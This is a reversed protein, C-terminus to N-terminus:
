LITTPILSFTTESIMKLMLMLKLMEMVKKLMMSFLIEQEIGHYEKQHIKQMKQTMTKMFWSLMMTIMMMMIMMM